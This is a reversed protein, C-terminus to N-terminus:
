TPDRDRRGNKRRAKPSWSEDAECYRSMEQAPQAVEVDVEEIAEPGGNARYPPEYKFRSEYAVGRATRTEAPARKGARADGLPPPSVVEEEDDIWRTQQVTVESKVDCAWSMGRGPPAIYNAGRTSFDSATTSIDNVRAKRPSGVAM